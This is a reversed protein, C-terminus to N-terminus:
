PQKLQKLEEFNSVTMVNYSQNLIRLSIINNQQHEKAWQPIHEKIPKSSDSRAKRSLAKIHSDELSTNSDM